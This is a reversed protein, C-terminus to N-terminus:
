TRNRANGRLYLAAATFGPGYAVAVGPGVPADTMTRSLVDLLAAGGLNGGSLSARAHEGAVEEDLGLGGLTGSIIGPGGPHVAAWGVPRGGVWETLHPLVRGPARPADPGSDFSFGGEHIVGWYAGASGPLVFEWVDDVVLGEDDQPGAPVLSVVAAAASDGFLGGYLVSQMSLPEAAPNYLTSLQEAAVVLARGGSRGRLARTAHVLGQGGGACAATALGIRTVDPRLGLREVLDVDLGPVTWSTTHSTVLVDVDRGSLGSRELAAGAAKEAMDRAATYGAQSRDQVGTRAVTEALSYAWPRDVVGTRRLMRLWVELRPHGAHRARLDEMLEETTVRNPARVVVPRSVVVDSEGTSVM